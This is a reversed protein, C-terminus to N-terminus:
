ALWELRRRASDGLLSQFSAKPMPRAFVDM